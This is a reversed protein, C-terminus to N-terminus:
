LSEVLRFGITCTPVDKCYTCRSHFLKGVPYVIFSIRLKGEGEDLLERNGKSWPQLKAYTHNWAQEGEAVKGSTGGDFKQSDFWVSGDEGAYAWGNAIIREVFSVIEPVYETVRTLTDPPQVNLRAMDSM